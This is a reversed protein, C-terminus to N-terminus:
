RRVRAEWGIAGAPVRLGHVTRPESNANYYLVGDILETAYIGDSDPSPLPWGQSNPRITEPHLIAQVVAENFEAPKDCRVAVTAGRGIRRVRRGGKAPEDLLSQRRADSGDPTRLLPGEAPVRALLIGGAEVWQHLADIEGPLAYPADPLAMVRVERALPSRITVRDLFEMDTRDRFQRVAGFLRGQSGPDLAWATKPLYVAAPVRPRRRQIFSPYQRFSAMGGPEVFLNGSYCFLQMAGSATANYIRAVNGQATVHGAPEFGFDLGLARGATAVERTISFNLAYDSAENTIRIRAGFPAIAKAQASFDAGITRDGSGGV